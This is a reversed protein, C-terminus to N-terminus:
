EEKIYLGCHCVTGVPAERFTKCMCKTDANRASPLVCPCYGNADKVAQKIAPAAEKDYIKVKM